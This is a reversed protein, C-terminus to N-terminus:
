PPAGDRVTLQFPIAQTTHEALAAVVLVVQQVDSGAGPLEIRGQQDAGLPVPRVRPQAAVEIVQVVYRPEVVNDSRVFGRATWGRESEADDAFGVEPVVIDDVAFGPGNIADDTVMEFRVWVTGGAYPTLDVTEEVWVPQVGGGSKGTYGPGYSNGLPDDTRSHQTTLVSWSRGQDPSVALYAYDWGDELDYWARFSLTAKQLGQLDLERTLTADVSDGRNSWWFHAGSPAKTPLIPATKEGRLELVAAGPLRVEIYRAGYPNVSSNYVNPREIVQNARITLRPHPYADEGPFQDLYNAVAWQSFVEDFSVSHGQSRLYAVIGEVGDEPEAVLDRIGPSRAYRSLLYKFFLYNADYYPVTQSVQLPWNVLSLSPLNEFNRVSQPYGLRDSMWQSLGENVWTEEDPDAWWHVLHQLEHALTAYYGPTDLATAGSSMYLMLRENSTPRIARPYNDPASFYGAVGPIRAHLITLHEDGDIGPRWTIGMEKLVQELVEEFRRGAQQVARDEPVAGEEFYFYAHPTVQRLVATVTFFREQVLDLVTFQQRHGVSYGPSPTVPPINCIGKLRCALDYPNNRPLGGSSAPPATPTPSPKPTASPSAAPTPTAVTSPTPVLPPVTAVPAPTPTPVGTASAVAATPTATATAAPPTPTLKPGCAVTGVILLAAVTPACLRAGRRLYASWVTHTGRHIRDGRRSRYTCM